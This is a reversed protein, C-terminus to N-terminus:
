RVVLQHRLSEQELFRLAVPAVREAAREHYEADFLQLGIPKVPIPPPSVLVTNPRGAAARRLAANIGSSIGAAVAVVPEDGVPVPLETIILLRDVPVSALFRRMQSAWPRSWPRESMEGYSPCWVVVDELDFGGGISANLVQDELRLREDAFNNVIVGRGTAAAIREGIQGDLAKARTTVGHGVALGSGILLIRVPDPGYALFRDGREPRVSAAAAARVHARLLSRSRFLLPRRTTPM